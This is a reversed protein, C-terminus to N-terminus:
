ISVLGRRVAQWIAESRSGAELKALVSSVHYKVTNASVALQSAIETNSMGRALLELVEHERPTLPDEAAEASTVAADDADADADIRSPDTVVMGEAALKAAAVVRGADRGAIEAWGDTRQRWARRAAPAHCDARVLVIPLPAVFGVLEEVCEPDSEDIVLVDLHGTSRLEAVSRLRLDIAVDGRSVRLITRHFTEDRSFVAVRIM